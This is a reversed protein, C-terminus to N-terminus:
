LPEWELMSTRQRYPRPAKTEFVIVDQIALQRRTNARDVLTQLLDRSQLRIFDPYTYVLTDGCAIYLRKNYKVIRFTGSVESMPQYKM